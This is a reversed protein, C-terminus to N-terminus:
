NVRKITVTTRERRDYNADSWNDEFIITSSDPFSITGNGKEDEAKYTNNGVYNFDDRRLPGSPFMVWEDDESNPALDSMHYYWKVFHLDDHTEVGDGSFDM